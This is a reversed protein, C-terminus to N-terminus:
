LPTTSMRIEPATHGTVHFFVSVTRPVDPLCLPAPPPHDGIGPGDPEPLCSAPSLSTNVSARQSPARSAKLKTIIAAGRGGARDGPLLRLSCATPSIKPPCSAPPVHRFVPLWPARRALTPPLVGSRCPLLPWFSANLPRLHVHLALVNKPLWAGAPCTRLPGSDCMCILSPGSPTRRGSRTVIANADVM